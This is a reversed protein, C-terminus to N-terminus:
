QINFMSGKVFHTNIVSVWKRGTLLVEPNKKKKKNKNKSYNM